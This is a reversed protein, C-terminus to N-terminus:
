NSKPATMGKQENNTEAKKINFEIVGDIKNKGQKNLGRLTDIIIQVMEVDLNEPVTIDVKISEPFRISICSLVSLSLLATLLIKKM